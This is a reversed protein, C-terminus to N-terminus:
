LTITGVEKKAWGAKEYDGDVPAAKRLLSATQTRYFCDYPELRDSQSEAAVKAVFETRASLTHWTTHLIGCLSNSKVTDLCADSSARDRDWPCLLVSFGAEKLVLATEVPAESVDYQWDAAIIARNLRSLMKQTSAKDPASLSYRNNKNQVDDPSLLMDAWLITKRGNSALAAQVENIYDCIADIEKDSYDFGYAEDCGIHFYSGNGCLECLERRVAAHLRRVTPNQINWCWGSQDFLYQLRPNQDLVTHKGHMVRSQSAHGWHNFMPILELGLDRAEALIPRLMEKTFAHKWSLEPLVDYRLMGWFELIVHTYKLAGCLRLFRRLEWLETDPFICFHVMRTQIRPSERLTFCEIYTTGDDAMVMRDLLTLFGYLLNEPTAAAIAVGDPTVRISYADKGYSLPALGGISFIPEDTPMLSLASTGFSFNNWFERLIPKDLVSHASAVLAKDLVYRGDLHTLNEHYFLM